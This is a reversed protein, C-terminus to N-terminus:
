ERITIQNQQRKPQQKHANVCLFACHSQGLFVRVMSVCVWLGVFRDFHFLNNRILTHSMPLIGNDCIRFFEFATLGALFWASFHFCRYFQIYTGLIISEYDSLAIFKSRNERTRGRKRRTGNANDVHTYLVFKVSRSFTMQYRNITVKPSNLREDFTLTNMMWACVSSACVRACMNWIVCFPKKAWLFCDWVPALMHWLHFSFLKAVLLLHTSKCSGSFWENEM